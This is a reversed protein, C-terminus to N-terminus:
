QILGHDALTQILFKRVQGSGKFQISVTTGDNHQISGEGYKIHTATSGPTLRAALLEPDMASATVSQNTKRSTKREPKPKSIVKKATVVKRQRHLESLSQLDLEGKPYEILLNLGCQAIVKGTGNERHAYSKGVFSNELVSFISEEKHVEVPLAQRAERTFSSENTGCSFLHLQNKARTMAVYYLRRAEEYERVEEESNRDPFAKAPLIGDFVDLLYVQDYELGKSSHITSLIFPASSTGHSQIIQQLQALRNLLDRPSAQGKGLLILTDFKGADLKSTDVYYGYGSAKIRRIAEAGTCEVLKPLLTMLDSVGERAYGNLEPYDMMEELITRGSILSQECAYQAAKKPLPSGFKYYIRLFAERDAPDYALHIIDTIDSVVRHTFFAGDFQRCQYPIGQRDLLDILPLASDNNRFLVATESRCTKAVEFLYKYQAERDVADIVQIPEGSGRTPVMTKPHRFRNRSVFANAVSVIESTSRYNQEILLVKAGPHEQSFNMLAQPYAARFGYISQDEDGVMFLNGYKQALLRIIAHQIRSTDQSEDVCLYRYQDQFYDLVAPFKELIGLAYKMQDDYDMLGKERLQACYEEYIEPLKQIGVDLDNIEDSTLMMNKIYTIATRLDKVTSPTSFEGTVRQYVQTLLRSVAGEDSLLQFPERRGHNRSYYDIIKASLGNITRFELANADSSGFLGAFRSKMEQTAAVTYTMTLISEPAIGLCHILYGLRLVLVTTKGSGPVALLLTAGDSSQVAERQQENLHTMYQLSFEQKTIM